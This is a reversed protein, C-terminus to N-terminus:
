IAAAACGPLMQIEAVRGGLLYFRRSCFCIFLSRLLVRHPFLPSSPRFQLTDYTFVDPDEELGEVRAIGAGGGATSPLVPARIVLEFNDEGDDDIPQDDDDLAAQLKSERKSEEMEEGARPMEAALPTEASAAMKSSPRETPAAM